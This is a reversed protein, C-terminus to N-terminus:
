YGELSYGYTMYIYAPTMLLERKRGLETDPIVLEHKIHNSIYNVVLSNMTKNWDSEEPMSRKVVNVFKEYLGVAYSGRVNYYVAVIRSWNTYAKTLRTYQLTFM